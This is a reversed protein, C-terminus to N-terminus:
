GNGRIGRDPAGSARAACVPCRPWHSPRPVTALGCLGFRVQRGEGLVMVPTDVPVAHRWQFWQGSLWVVAGTV